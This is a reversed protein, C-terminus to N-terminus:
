FYLQIYWWSMCIWVAEQRKLCINKLFVFFNSITTQCFEFFFNKQFDYSRKFTMHDKSLWIIKQFDYSRKFTMHEKSLWIIKYTEWRSLVGLLCLTVLGATGTITTKHNHYSVHVTNDSFLYRLLHPPQNKFVNRDTKWSECSREVSNKRITKKYIFIAKTLQNNTNNHNCIFSMYPVIYMTCRVNHM